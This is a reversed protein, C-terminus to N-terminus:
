ESTQVRGHLRLTSGEKTIHWGLRRLRNVVNYRYHGTTEMIENMTTGEPRAMLQCVVESVTGSIVGWQSEVRESKPQGNQKPKREPKKAKVEIEKVKKAVKTGPKRGRKAKPKEVVPVEEFEADESEQTVLETSSEQQEGDSLDEYEVDDIHHPTLADTHHPTLADTIVEPLHPGIAEPVAGNAKPVFDPLQDGAQHADAAQYSWEAAGDSLRDFETDPLECTVRLLAALYDQRKRYRKEPVFGTSDILEQEIPHTTESARM